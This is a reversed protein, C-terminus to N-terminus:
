IKKWNIPIYTKWVNGFIKYTETKYTTINKKNNRIKNIQNDEEKKQNIQRLTQWNQKCKWLIGIKWIDTLNMKETTCNLM